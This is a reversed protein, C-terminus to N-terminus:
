FDFLHDHKELVQGKRVEFNVIVEEVEVVVIGEVLLRRM